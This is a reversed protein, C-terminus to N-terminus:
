GLMPFPLRGKRRERSVFMTEITLEVPDRSHVETTLRLFLRRVPLRDSRQLPASRGIVVLTAERGKKNQRHQRM